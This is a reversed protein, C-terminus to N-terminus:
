EIVEDEKLNKIQTFESDAYASKTNLWDVLHGTIDPVKTEPNNMNDMFYKQLLEVIDSEQIYAKQFKDEIVDLTETDVCFMELLDRFQNPAKDEERNARGFLQGLLGGAEKAMDANTVAAAVPGGFVNFGLKAFQPALQTGRKM